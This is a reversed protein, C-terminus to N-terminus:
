YRVLSKSCYQTENEYYKTGKPIYLKIIMEICTFYQQDKAGKVTKCSHFMGSEIDNGDFEIEGLEDYQYGRKWLVDNGSVDQMTYYVGTLDRNVTKYVPIDRRAVKLTKSKLTFCM